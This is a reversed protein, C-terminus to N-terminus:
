PKVKLIRYFRASVEDPRRSTKPPGEDMWQVRDGPASISPLARVAGSFTVDDDYVVEYVRGPEAPFELLLGGSALRRGTVGTVGEGPAPTPVYVPVAWAEVAPDGFAVRAPVYYELLLNASEGAGLSRTLAVFPRGANTGGANFLRQELDPFLVRGGAVASGTSNTLRIVQEMLGTQPNFTQSSVFSAALVGATPSALLWTEVATDDSPLPDRVDPSNVEASVVNTGAANVQLRVNFSVNSGAALAGASFVLQTGMITAPANSPSVTLFQAAAPLLNTVVFRPIGEPGANTVALRYETWDGTVLTNTDVTLSVGLNADAAFVRTVENTVENINLALMQFTNTLSGASLPQVILSMVANSTNPLQPIRFVVASGELGATGARNTASVYEVAASFTSNVVVNTLLGGSRNSLTLAYTLERSLTAVAPSTRVGLELSAAPLRAGSLISLALLQTLFFPVRGAVVSTFRTVLGVPLGILRHGPWASEPKTGHRLETLNTLFM